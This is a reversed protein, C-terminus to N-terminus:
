LAIRREGFNIRMNALGRFFITLEYYEAFREDRAIREPDLAGITRFEFGCQLFGQKRVVRALCNRDLVAIQGGYALRGSFVVNGNIEADNLAGRIAATV